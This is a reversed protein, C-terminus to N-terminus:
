TKKVYSKPKLIAPRAISIGALGWWLLALTDDTWAHSVLNIVTIGAFSALLVRALLQNKRRWWLEKAVMFSITAYILIGILGVEQAIQVYYNEAIRAPQSNRASAPGATGVGAGLPQRVVDRAGDSLSNYRVENSSTASQSKEDSHFVTNQVYDNDQFVITLSGLVLVAALVFGLLIRRVYVAVDSICVLVVGSVVLGIWASRSYSFFLVILVAAGAAAILARQKYRIFLAALTTAILTLYAGLPNPGRLSSQLRAYEPKNDVAQYPVITNENYGVHRLVDKELVFQQLLGFVVVVVAPGLIIQLWWIYLWSTKQAVVWVAVFFVLYRLNLVLGFLLAETSVAGAVWANAGRLISYLAYLGILLILFSRSFNKQLKKDVFLLYAVGLVLLIIFFEKWLRFADTSGFVSGLWTTFLAHFPLLVMTLAIAFALGRAVQDQVTPSKKKM